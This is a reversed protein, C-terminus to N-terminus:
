RVGDDLAARYRPCDPQYVSRLCQQHPLKPYFPADDLWEDLVSDCRGDDLPLAHLGLKVFVM